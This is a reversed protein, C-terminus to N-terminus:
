DRNPAPASEPQEPVAEADRMKRLVVKNRGGAKADYLASDAEAILSEVNSAGCSPRFVAAGMSCTIKFDKGQAHISLDTVAAHLGALRQETAQNPIENVVLLFEEGGFRGAHDYNRIAGNIATAFRRLADDGALHGYTDNVRKFYDLDALVVVLSRNERIARGLESELAALIAGRNMIGTLADHTAQIRLQERSAELERTRRKVLLELDRSQKRLHRSYLRSGGAIALFTALACLMYFWFSRWWPSLIVVTIKVPESFSDLGPNRAMVRLTYSGPPLGSFVATGDWSPVWDPQLGDMRYRFFLESRNEVAPSSMEFRLPLPSWPLVISRTNPAFTQDGRRIATISVSTPAPDFIREPHLLHAIGGGTGIWLSGDPASHIAGQNIDNWVLGSEQTLHRWSTGNWVALGLDTGLWVWGRRDVFIALPALSRLEPPLILESAQLRGSGESLRWTGDMDGTVWMAGDLACSMSLFTSRMTRPLGDIPPASWQGGRLRVLRGGSLFWLTGNPAECATEVRAANGLIPDLATVRQPASNRSDRVYLGQKTSLYLKGDKTQLGNLVFAPIKATQTTRGTKPDIRLIGGSFTGAWLSGDRDLGMAGIQGFAWPRGPALNGSAGTRPNVWAPGNETGVIVRNEQYPVTIWAVSSPLGQEDSWAEWNEYGAWLHLGDGRGSVWLDGSADIQLGSAHNTRPLGNARGILRWGAGEWRAIGIEAPALVRGDRDEILPAHGFASEPDTGPISRDVFDASGPPLAAVHHLGGAWLTGNRTLIVNQWQDPPLGKEKGWEEIEDLYLQSRGSPDRDLWTYLRDGCGLWIRTGYPGDRVISVSSVRGLDPISAIMWEPIVPQYSLMRGAPDHELRYLRDNEVILLHFADEAALKWSRDISIKRKGAPLFRSGDWRYVNEDTGVWIIGGPDAVVGLVDLEGVGQDRGYQEFSSGLFRYVGNETAAWLFGERDMTMANVVLNKLGQPQQYSRFVYSQAQLVAPCVAICALVRIAKGIKM